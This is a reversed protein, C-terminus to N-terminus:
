AGASVTRRESEHTLSLDTRLEPLLRRELFRGGTRSGVWRGDEVLTEGRLITHTIRGTLEWGEWCNYDSSMHHEEARVTWRAEPDIIALDADSGPAIAGKRPYLGMIKAPNASILEVFRRLSIRGERVGRSFLVPVRMEVSAQGAQLSDVTTGMREYRDASSTAFHDASVVQLVDTRVAEWLADQDAQSKLVPYNNWLLGRNEDDWLKDQTFSLYAIISEGLVPVGRARAEAIAAAASGAAVHFVCLPAGAREALLIM